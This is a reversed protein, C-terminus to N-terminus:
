FYRRPAAAAPVVQLQPVQVNRLAPRVAKADDLVLQRVGRFSLRWRHRLPLLGHSPVPVTSATSASASPAASVAASFSSAQVIQVGCM